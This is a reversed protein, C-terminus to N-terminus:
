PKAERLAARRKRDARYERQKAAKYAKMDDISAPRGRGRKNIVDSVSVVFPSKSTPPPLQVDALDVHKGDVSAAMGYVSMDHALKEADSKKTLRDPKWNDPKTSRKPCNFWSHGSKGCIDCPLM